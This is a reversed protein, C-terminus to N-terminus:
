RETGPNEPCFAEKISPLLREMAAGRSGKILVLDGDQLMTKIAAKAQDMTEIMRAPLGAAAAGTAIHKGLDGVGILLDIRRRAIDRGTQEHIALTQPGQELMDGVIMVRRRDPCDSLADAAAVMSTPNANYADHILTVSGCQISQLRGETGGFDVLAAAADEINIGFWNAAAIAALANMANHRGPLPLDVWVRGNMEFRQALGSSEYNTLRLDADAVNGFRVMRCDYPELAKDLEPSDAWVIAVGGPRLHKLLSAKEVAVGAISGLKELHTNGVSTIIALDPQVITGLAVIEGPASTGVECIVYQDDADVALLTLPVGINNNFSKPSCSGKLRRSLIHHIMRKVTTKGNSGTVAVVKANLSKRYYAGLRQLAVGTDAAAIIGAPFKGAVAKFDFDERVIAAACGAAAAKELFNHGDFNEGSLAIFLEGAKASRTDTTVGIIQLTDPALRKGGVAQCVEDIGMPRM